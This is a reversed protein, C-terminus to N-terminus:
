RRAPASLDTNCPRTMVAARRPNLLSRMGILSSRTSLHAEPESTTGESTFGAAFGSRAPFPLRTIESAIGLEENEHFSSLGVRLFAHRPGRARRVIIVGVPPSSVQPASGGVGHAEPCVLVPEDVGQVIVPRADVGPRPEVRPEVFDVSMGSLESTVQAAMPAPLM